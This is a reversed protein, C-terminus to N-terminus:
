SQMKNKNKLVTAFKCLFNINKLKNEAPTTKATQQVIKQDSIFFPTKKAFWTKKEFIGLSFYQRWDAGNM